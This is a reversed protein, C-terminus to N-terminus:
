RERLIRDFDRSTHIIRLILVRDDLIEYWVRYRGKVFSRTSPADAVRPGIEANDRLLVLCVDMLEDAVRLAARPSFDSIFEAIEDLDARADPSVEVKM